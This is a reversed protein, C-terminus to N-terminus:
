QRKESPRRLFPLLQLQKKAKTYARSGLWWAPLLPFPLQPDKALIALYGLLLQHDVSGANEVARLWQKYRGNVYELDYVRAILAHIDEEGISGGKGLSSVIVTGGLRRTEIFSRLTDVPDYPTMWVSDQLKGCGIRQLHHRLLGRMNRLKEPIDYTVLHLRGDWTRKEDYRPLVDALRRLGEVTIEPDAHRTKQVIYGRRKAMVLANKISDYHVRNTFTDAAVQARFLQGSRSQPMSAEAFYVIFWLTMDVMHSFAGEALVLAARSFGKATGSSM